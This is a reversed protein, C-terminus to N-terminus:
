TSKAAYGHMIRVQISFQKIVKNVVLLGFYVFSLKVHMTPIYCMHLLRYMKNGTSRHKAVTHVSCANNSITSRLREERHTAHVSSKYVLSSFIPGFISFLTNGKRLDGLAPVAYNGVNKDLITDLKRSWDCM